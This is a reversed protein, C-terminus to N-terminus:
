KMQRDTIQRVLSLVGFGIKAGDSTSLKLPEGTSEQRKVIIFAAALGALLGVTGGVLFTTLKWGKNEEM